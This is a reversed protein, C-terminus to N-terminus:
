KDHCSGAAAPGLWLEISGFGASSAFAIEEESYGCLYGIRM